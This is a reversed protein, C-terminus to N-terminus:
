IGAEGSPELQKIAVIAEHITMRLCDDLPMEDLDEARNALEPDIDVVQGQENERPEVAFSSGYRSRFGQLRELLAEAEAALAAVMPENVTPRATRVRDLWTEREPLTLYGQAVLADEVYRRLDSCVTGRQWFTMEQRIARLARDLVEDFSFFEEDPLLEEQGKKSRLRNRRCLDFSVALSDGLPSAPFAQCQRLHLEWQKQPYPPMFNASRPVLRFELCEAEYLETLVAYLLQKAFDEPCLETDDQCAYARDRPISGVPRRPPPKVFRHAFLYVLGEPGIPEDAARKELRAKPQAESWEGARDLLRPLGRFILWLLGAGLVILFVAIATHM